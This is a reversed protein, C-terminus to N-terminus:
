GMVGDGWINEGNLTLLHTILLCHKVKSWKAVFGGELSKGLVKGEVTWGGVLFELENVINDPLGTQKGQAAPITEQGLCLGALCGVALTGVLILRKM